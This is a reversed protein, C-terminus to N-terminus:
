NFLMPKKNLKFIKTQIFEFYKKMRVSNLKFNPYIHQDELRSLTNKRIVFLLQLLM